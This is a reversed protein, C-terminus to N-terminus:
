GGYKAKLADTTSKRLKQADAAVKALDPRKGAVLSEMVLARAYSRDVFAGVTNGFVMEGDIDIGMIAKTKADEVWSSSSLESMVENAAEASKPQWGHGIRLVYLEALLGRRGLARTTSALKACWTQLEESKVIPDLAGASPRRDLITTIVADFRKAAVLEALEKPTVPYDRALAERAWAILDQKEPGGAALADLAVKTRAADGSARARVLETLAKPGDVKVAPKGDTPAVGGAKAAFAKLDVPGGAVKANLRELHLRSAKADKRAMADLYDSLAGSADVGFGLAGEVAADAHSPSTVAAVKGDKGIVYSTPFGKVHDAELISKSPDIGMPFTVEHEKSFREVLAAGEWCIGLVILGSSGFRDHFEQVKPMQRICPGCKTEWFELFLVKGKRSAPTPATGGGLNVWGAVDLAPAVTGVALGRDERPPPAEDPAPEPADMGSPVKPDPKPPDARVFAGRSGSGVVCLVFALSLSIQLLVERAM